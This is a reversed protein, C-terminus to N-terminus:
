AGISIVILAFKGHVIKMGIYKCTPLLTSGESIIVEVYLSVPALRRYCGWTKMEVACALWSVKNLIISVGWLLPYREIIDTLETRPSQDGLQFLKKQFVNKWPKHCPSPFFLFQMPNQPWITHPFLQNHPSKHPGSCLKTIFWINPIQSCSSVLCVNYADYKKM